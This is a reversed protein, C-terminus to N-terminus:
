NEVPLTDVHDAVLREVRANTQNLRLSIHELATQYSGFPSGADRLAVSVTEPNTAVNDLVLDWAGEIASRDIVLVEEVMKSYSNTSLKSTLYLALQGMSIGFFETRYRNNELRSEWPGYESDTRAAISITKKEETQTMTCFEIDGHRYDLIWPDCTSRDLKRAPNLKSGGKITM